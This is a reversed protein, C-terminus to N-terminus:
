FMRPGMRLDRNTPLRPNEVRNGNVLSQSTRSEWDTIAGRAAIAQVLSNVYALVGAPSWFMNWSNVALAGDYYEFAHGANLAQAVVASCNLGLSCWDSDPDTRSMLTRWWSKIRTEYLGMVRIAHNPQLGDEGAVDNEFTRNRGPRSCFIRTTGATAPWYSIYVSGAPEGGDVRMSAHGWAGSHENWIFVTVM